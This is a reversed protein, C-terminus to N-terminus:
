APRAVVLRSVAARVPGLLYTVAVIRGAMLATAAAIAGLADFVTIGIALTAAVSAVELGTAWSIHATRRTAVLTSRMFSLAVSLFPMLSLIRAPVIAFRALDPSLGSIGEFWLTAAPTWAVIVLIGTLVLGLTTAFRRLARFGEGCDGLLAINVEQFALGLASFIFVLSIIVPMVALSEIANRSRGLFFSVMPHVGTALLATLVLPYYFRTIYRYTLHEAQVTSHASTEWFLALVPAVMIRSAVAEATVGVSLASAGVWAGEMSSFRALLLATGAMSILRVVTGYAVRRTRGYRILVGQYFRRFGIAGPWLLLLAVAGHTRWAVDAPLGILGRAVLDFVAPIILVLMGATIAVNLFVTFNRLKVYSLADRVIATSASLMMIVPAELLLGLSFAVGYAALNEKPAALRAIIAALLPGEVSMMLWTLALPLWFLFIKGQSPAQRSTEAEDPHESNM